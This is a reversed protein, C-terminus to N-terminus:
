APASQPLGAADAKTIRISMEENGAPDRGMTALLLYRVDDALVRMEGAHPRPVSTRDLMAMVRIRNVLPQGAASPITMQQRWEGNVEYRVVCGHPELSLRIASGGSMIAQSVILDVLKVVPRQSADTLHDDWLRGTMSIGGSPGRRLTAAFFLSDEYQSEDQTLEQRTTPRDCDVTRTV